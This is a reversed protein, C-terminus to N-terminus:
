VHCSQDDFMQLKASRLVFKRVSFMDFHEGSDFALPVPLVKFWSHRQTPVQPIFGYFQSGLVRLIYFGTYEARLQKLIRSVRDPCLYCQGLELFACPFLSCVTVLQSSLQKLIRSVRDPCLYCQGLELFACAFLSCVTVLQSSLANCRYPLTM